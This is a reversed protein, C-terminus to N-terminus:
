LSAAIEKERGNYQLVGLSTEDFKLENEFIRVFSAAVYYKEGVETEIEFLHNNGHGLYSTVSDYNMIKSIDVKRIAIGYLSAFLQIYTTDFFIVDINIKQEDTKSSRLLLQGHSILFDSIKFYRDSRFIDKNM